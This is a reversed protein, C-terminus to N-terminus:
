VDTGIEVINMLVKVESLTTHGLDLRGAMVEDNSRIYYNVM